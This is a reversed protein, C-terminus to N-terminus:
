LLVLLVFVSEGGVEMSLLSPVSAFLPPLPGAVGRGLPLGCCDVECLSLVLLGVGCHWRFSLWEVVCLWAGHNPLMLPAVQFAFPRM